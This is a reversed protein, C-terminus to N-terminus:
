AVARLGDRGTSIQGLVIRGFAEPWGIAGLAVKDGMPVLPTERDMWNLATQLTVGYALAVSNASRHTAHIFACWRDPFEVRWRLPDFANCCHIQPRGHSLRGDSSHVLSLAPRSM